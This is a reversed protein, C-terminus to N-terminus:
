RRLAKAPPQQQWRGDLCLKAAHCIDTRRAEWEEASFTSHEPLESIEALLDELTGLAEYAAVKDEILLDCHMFDLQELVDRFRISTLESAIIPVLAIPEEERM